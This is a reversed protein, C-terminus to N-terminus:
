RLSAYRFAAATESDTTDLTGGSFRDSPPNAPLVVSELRAASEPVAFLGTRASPRPMALRAFGKTNATANAMLRGLAEADATSPAATATARVPRSAAAQQADAMPAAATPATGTAAVKQLAAPRLRPVPLAAADGPVGIAASYALQYSPRATPMQAAGAGLANAAAVASGAALPRGEPIAAAAMAAYAATADSAIMAVQTSDAAPIAAPRGSGAPKTKPVPAMALDTAAAAAVAPAAEPTVDQAQTLPQAEPRSLAALAIERTKM